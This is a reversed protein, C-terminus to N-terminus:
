DLTARILESCKIWEEDENHGKNYKCQQCSVSGIRIGDDWFRCEKLCADWAMQYHYKIYSHRVLPKCFWRKMQLKLTKLM